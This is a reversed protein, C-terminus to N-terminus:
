VSDPHVTLPYRGKTATGLRPVDVIFAADVPLPTCELNRKLLDRPYAAITGSAIRPFGPKAPTQVIPSTGLEGIRAIELPPPLRWRERRAQVSWM